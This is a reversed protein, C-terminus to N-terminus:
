AAGGEPLVVDKEMERKKPPVPAFYGVLPLLAGVAIFSVIRFLGGRDALEGFFLKLVVVGLLAAGGFSVPPLARWWVRLEGRKALM